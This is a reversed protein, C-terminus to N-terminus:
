ASLAEKVDAYVLDYRLLWKRIRDSDNPNAKLSRSQAFLERGAEAMSGTQAIVKLVEVVQVFEVRDLAEARGGLLQHIRATLDQDPRARDAGWLRRLETVEFAVDDAGIRGSDALTAMRLVAASLDRFNGPWAAGRAFALFAARAEKTMTVRTNLLRGSQSLEHDLNPEIDEPRQALGPLEFTWVNIRALLDARFRGASVEAALDKNTGALLQFDSEVERDSGMPMFRKDELARLLMAQEDLGLEGIEDLFLTGKNASRLLGAREGVAGTFAGRKHGFLASMANDGRLTACNVEVFTGSVLNRRKRLEFVRQALASKGAGTPGTLLLPATSKLAVRELRGILANFAVNRTAIGGKLLDQSDQSEKAFRKALQDYTSLDLDIIDVHGRWFEEAHLKTDYGTEVLRGPLYRAESLLFLCIQAVHTGTTLHVYYDTDDRFDYTRAFEHLAAYVEAFDWPDNVGLSHRRVATRSSVTKIDAVVQNFLAPAEEKFSLLEIVDPRFHEHAVLAVTPRWRAWRKDSVGSDLKTGLFGIVVTKHVSLSGQFNPRARRACGRM